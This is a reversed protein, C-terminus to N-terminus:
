VNLVKIAQSGPVFGPHAIQNREAIEEARDSDQYLLQAIELTSTTEVPVHDVLRPLRASQELIGSVIGARLDEIAQYTGHTANTRAADLWAALQDAMSQADDFVTWSQQSALKASQAIASLWVLRDLAAQNEAVAAQTPTMASTDVAESTAAADAFMQTLANCAALDEIQGLVTAWSEALDEPTELLSTISDSMADLSDVVDGLTDASLYLDLTEQTDTIQATAADIAREVVEGTEDIFRFAAEFDSAGSASLSDAYVEVVDEVDTIELPWSADGSEVFTLTFTVVRGADSSETVECSECSCLMQGLSPHILTGPGSTECADLLLNRDKYCADGILFGTIKVERTARGMDEAYPLDRQPFEHTVVRRGVTMSDASVLFRVGRFSAM